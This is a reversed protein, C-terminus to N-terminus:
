SFSGPSTIVWITSVFGMRNKSCAVIVIIDGHQAGGPQAEGNGVGRGSGFGGCLVDGDAVVVVGDGGDDVGKVASLIRYLWFVSRCLM